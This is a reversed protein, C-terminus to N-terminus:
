ERVLLIYPTYSVGRIDGHIVPPAFEHLYQLGCSIDRILSLRTEISTGPDHSLLHMVNGASYYPMVLAPLTGLNFM